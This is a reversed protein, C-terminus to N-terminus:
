KCVISALKLKTRFSPGTNDIESEHILSVKSKTVNLPNINLAKLQEPVSNELIDQLTKPPKYELVNDVRTVEGNSETKIIQLVELNQRLSKQIPNNVLFDPINSTDIGNNINNFPAPLSSSSATTCILQWTGPFLTKTEMEYNPRESVAELDDVASRLQDKAKSDIIFVGYKDKLNYALDMLEQKSASVIKQQDGPLAEKTRSVSYLPNGRYPSQLPIHFGNVINNTLVLASSLFTINTLHLNM